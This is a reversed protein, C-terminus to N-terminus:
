LAWDEYFDGWGYEFEIRELLRLPTRAKLLILRALNRDPKNIAAQVQDEDVSRAVDLATGENFHAMAYEVLDFVLRTTSPCRLAYNGLVRYEVGYPTPRFEGAKGYLERRAPSSPDCDFLISACGLYIDLLRIALAKNDLSHLLGDEGNKAYDLDGVHIHFSGTRLGNTFNAPPNPELKYGNFNPNCGSEWHSYRILNGDKDRITPSVVDELEEKKYVHSAQPEIRYRKGLRIQAGGFLSTLSEVMDESSEEPPMTFELLANDGYM